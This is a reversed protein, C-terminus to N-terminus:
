VEVVSTESNKKIRNIDDLCDQKRRYGQSSNAIIRGNAAKLRWRWEGHADRFIQYTMGLKEEFAIRSLESVIREAAALVLGASLENM